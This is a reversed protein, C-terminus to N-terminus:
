ESVKTGTFTFSCVMGVNTTAVCKFTLTSDDMDGDTIECTFPIPIIAMVVTGSGSGEFETDTTFSLPATLNLKHATIIKFNGTLVNDNVKFTINEVDNKANGNMVVNTVTGTFDAANAVVAMAILAVFLMIKKM